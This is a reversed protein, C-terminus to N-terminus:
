NPNTNKIKTLCCHSQQPHSLPRGRGTAPPHCAPWALLPTPHWQLHCSTPARPNPHPALAAVQSGIQFQVTCSGIDWKTHLTVSISMYELLYISFDIHILTYAGIHIYTHTHIYIYVYTGIYIYLPVERYICVCIIYLYISLYNSLRFCWSLSLSIYIYSFNNTSMYFYM